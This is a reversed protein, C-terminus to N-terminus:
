TKDGLALYWFCLVTTGHFGSWSSTLTSSSKLKGLKAVWGTTMMLFSALYGNKKPDKPSSIKGKRMLYTHKIEFLLM